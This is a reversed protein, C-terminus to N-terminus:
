REPYNSVYTRNPAYALKVAINWPFEDLTYESTSAGSNYRRGGRHDIALANLHVIFARTAYPHPSWKLTSRIITHYEWGRGVSPLWIAAQLEDKVIWGSVDVAATGTNILEVWDGPSGGNSEVENIRVTSSAALAAKAPVGVALVALAAAALASSRWNTRM